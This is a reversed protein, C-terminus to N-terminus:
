EHSWLEFRAGIAQQNAGVVSVYASEHPKHLLWDIALTAQWGSSAALGEGLVKRPSLRAHPWEKWCTAEAADHRPYGIASDCLLDAEGSAILEERARAVAQVRTPASTFTHSDTVAKLIVERKAIAGRRLAIAAAGEGLVVDRNFYRMADATLWDAEEAAIVVCEDVENQFLWSGALALGQLFTGSDGVLTYSVTETGLLAALHSSPANFVTEPFLLPSATAPDRLVEDYFRRSYNVCGTMVCTIIGLRGEEYRADEPAAGLAELAAAVAFHSIASTRRLRPHSMFSLKEAPAPVRRVRLPAPWGPRELDSVPAPTGSEVLSRLAVMGWGAPSVAGIGSISIEHVPGLAHAAGMADVGIM